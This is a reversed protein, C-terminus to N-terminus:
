AADAAAEALLWERFEAVTENEAAATAYLLYFAIDTHHLFSCPMVLRGALLDARVLRFMGMAIGIGEVAAQYSLSSSEFFIGSQPDVDRTKAAKLWLAWDQPRANSHLLTFQSLDAFRGDLAGSGLLTPSCVPVLDIDFLKHATLLPTSAAIMAASRTQLSVDLTAALEEATPLDSSLRIQQRPRRAHFGALRPVLWRLTFTIAIHVHLVQQRHHEVLRRTAREMQRFSDGLQDVYAKCEASLRVERHNRDFLPFGLIEELTRIQRSVAGPTVHLEEAARAFSMLRGAAELTKLANLPPLRTAVRVGKHAFTAQRASAM